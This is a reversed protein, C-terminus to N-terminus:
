PRAQPVDQRFCQRSQARTARLRSAPQAPHRGQRGRPTSRRAHRDARHNKSSAAHQRQSVARAYLETQGPMESNEEAFASIDFLENCRHKWLSQLRRRFRRRRARLANLLRQKGSEVFVCLVLRFDLDIRPQSDRITFHQLLFIERLHRRRLDRRGLVGDRAQRQREILNACPTERLISAAMEDIDPARQAGAHLCAARDDVQFIKPRSQLLRRNDRQEIDRARHAFVRPQKQM